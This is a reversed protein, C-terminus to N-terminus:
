LTNLSTQNYYENYDQQMTDELISQFKEDGEIAIQFQEKYNLCNICIIASALIGVVCIIIIPLFIGFSAAWYNVSSYILENCAILCTFIATNILGFILSSAIKNDYGENISKKDDDSLNLIERLLIDLNFFVISGGSLPSAKESISVLQSLPLTDIIQKAKKTKEIYQQIVLSYETGEIFEAYGELSLLVTSLEESINYKPKQFIFMRMKRNWIDNQQIIKCYFYILALLNEHKTM